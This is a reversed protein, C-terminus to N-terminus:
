INKNIFNEEFNYLPKINALFLRTASIEAKKILM